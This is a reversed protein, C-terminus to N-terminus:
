TYLDHTQVGVDEKLQLQICKLCTRRLDSAQVNLGEQVHMGNQTNILGEWGPRFWVVGDIIGYNEKLILQSTAHLQTADVDTLEDDKSTDDDIDQDEKDITTYRSDAPIM